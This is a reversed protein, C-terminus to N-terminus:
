KSVIRSVTKRFLECTADLEKQPAGQLTQLALGDLFAVIFRAIHRSSIGFDMDEQLISDIWKEQLRKTKEALVPNCNSMTILEFYTKQVAPHSLQKDRLFDISALIRKEPEHIDKLHEKLIIQEKEMFVSAAELLLGEKGKFYYDIQSLAVEAQKAIDRLTVAAVGKEAICQFTAEILKEKANSM